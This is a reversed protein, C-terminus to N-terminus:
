FDTAAVVRNRGLNKAKYLARDARKLTDEIKADSDQLVALGISIEFNFSIKKDSIIAQSINKRIREAIKLAVTEETEVLVVAFEEGGIRALIDNDRLIKSCTSSFIQLTLDGLAHGYTDNIKKFHDIDIMLISLPNNYRKSRKM